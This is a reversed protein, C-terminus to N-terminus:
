EKDNLVIDDNDFDEVEKFNRSIVINEDAVDVDEFDDEDEEFLSESFNNLKNKVSELTDKITADPNEKINELKEKADKRLDSGKKPALFMGLLFGAIAGFIMFGGKKGSM